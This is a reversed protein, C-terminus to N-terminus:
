KLQAMVEQAFDETKKEIGEGLMYRCFHKVTVTDGFAAAQESLLEGITKGPDKVFPQLMLVRQGLVKNLRGDVIKERISEPKGQLDDKGMEIRKEEDRVAQPIDEMTVFEAGASAVQMCIDKALQAFVDNSVTEPKECTLEALVGIKGGTHIYAHVRGNGQCAYSEFRRVQINEKIAAIRDTVFAKVTSGAMADAPQALFAEVTAPTKEAVQRTLQRVLEGFADGKAVFDTECNVELLAGSRSDDAIHAEVLGEAAQRGSKKAANSLGKQRLLETAKDLDGGAEVLANRTDLMGAGTKERLEKVQAATYSM